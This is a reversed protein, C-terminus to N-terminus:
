ARHILAVIQKSATQHFWIRMAYQRFALLHLLRGTPEVRVTPFDHECSQPLVAFVPAPIQQSCMHPRVMDMDHHLGLNLWLPYHDLKFRIGTPRKVAQTAIPRISPTPGPM